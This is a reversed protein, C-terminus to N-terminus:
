KCVFDMRAKARTSVAMQHESRSLAVFSIDPHPQRTDTWVLSGPETVAQLM